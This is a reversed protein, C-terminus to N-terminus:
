LIIVEHNATVDNNCYLTVMYFGSLANSGNWKLLYDGPQLNDKTISSIYDGTVDYSDIKILGGSDLNLVIQIEPLISNPHVTLKKEYDIDIKVKKHKTQIDHLHVDSFLYAHIQNASISKDLFTHSPQLEQNFNKWLGISRNKLGKYILLGLNENSTLKKWSLEIYKDNNRNSSDFLHITLPSINKSIANENKIQNSIRNPLSNVNQSILSVSQLNFILFLLKLRYKLQLQYKFNM